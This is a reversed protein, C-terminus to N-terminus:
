KEIKENIVARYRRFSSIFDEPATKLWKDIEAKPILM